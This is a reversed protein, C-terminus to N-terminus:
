APIERKGTVCEYILSKKYANLKELLKEKESILSDIQSCKKNLYIIIKNQENIPPVVIIINKTETQNLIPLTTFKGCKFLYDNISYLFFVLFLPLLQNSCLIANIQQNGSSKDLSLAVKGMTAGIGIILVSNPRFIKVYQIGLQSLKKSSSNILPFSNFDEPTFWSLGVDSFFKEDAGKPTNGTEISDVVRRLPLIRWDNPIAGIWEVGSDKMEVDPDLGKTVAETIISQKYQKLKDISQNILNIISDIQSCKIDIATSINKSEIISPYPFYISKLDTATMSPVASGSKYYDFPISCCLYYFYKSLKEERLKTFFMTDVVWFPTEMYIPSDITGKRGLLISCNEYIAQKCTGFQGGSGILPYIGNEDIVDKSDAGNCIEAYVKFRCTEWEEPIEGIWPVGSDKMKRM